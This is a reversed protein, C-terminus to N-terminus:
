IKKWYQPLLEAMNSTTYLHMRELVDKLWAYPNIQHYRCTAFLSYIMAARQAAEHSGAFLYNKRGIAVPRVANEVPNNDIKLSADTTYVILKDWRKLFYSIAKGIPSQPLVKPYEALMWQKLIKLIPMAEQQRLTLTEEKSLGEDAIRRELAYLQGFMVLAYESRDKDNQLADYFKRRAHAICGMLIIGPRKDFHDYAAYGDTQLHGQFDKLIDDPGDPGRGRRYDFLVSKQESNHYLWYYGQHTKGRGSSGNPRAKKDDDLVQITTEDVHLYRSALVYQKHLNYLSILHMLVAKVWGCITTQAINVGARSYRQSQRHLPMHDVYKDVVIQALLGEGAMCKEMIRGPLSATIVTNDTANVPVVYKSRIYQKVYLEGAIFDLVETVEEGIKKLGEINNQPQLIIVERRLHDPLKMRGPHAKPPNPIVETKTRIYAVKTAATIKCAAITEADLDLSLQPNVKSEDTPVFRESQSGFVMKKLQAVDHMLAEYKILLTEYAQKYDITPAQQMIPLLAIAPLGKVYGMQM